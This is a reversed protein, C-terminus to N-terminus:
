RLIEEPNLLGLRVLLRGCRSAIEAAPAVSAALEDRSQIAAALAAEIRKIEQQDARIREDERRTDGASTARFRDAKKADDEAARRAAILDAVAQQAAGVAAVGGRAAATLAFYKALAEAQWTEKPATM